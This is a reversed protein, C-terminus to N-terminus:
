ETEEMMDIQKSILMNVRNQLTTVKQDINMAAYYTM